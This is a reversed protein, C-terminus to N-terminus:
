GSLSMHVECFKCRNCPLVNSDCNAHCLSADVKIIDFSSMMQSLMFQCLMLKYSLQCVMLQYLVQMLNYIIFTIM